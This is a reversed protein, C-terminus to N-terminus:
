RSWLLFLVVFLGFLMLIQIAGLFYFGLGLVFFEAFFGEPKLLSRMGMFFWTPTLCVPVAIVSLFSRSIMSM